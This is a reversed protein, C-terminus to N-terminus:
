SVKVATINIICTCYFFLQPFTVNFLVSLACLLVGLYGLAGWGKGKM